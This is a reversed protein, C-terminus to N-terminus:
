VSVDTLALLILHILHRGYCWQGRAAPNREATPKHLPVLTPTTTTAWVTTHQHLVLAQHDCYGDQQLPTFATIDKSPTTSMITRRTWVRSTSQHFPPPLSSVSGWLLSALATVKLKGTERSKGCGDMLVKVSLKISCSWEIRRHGEVEDLIVRTALRTLNNNQSGCGLRDQSAARAAKTVRNTKKVNPKKFM